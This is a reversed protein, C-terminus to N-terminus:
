VPSTVENVYTMPVTVTVVGAVGKTVLLWVDQVRVLVRSNKSEEM